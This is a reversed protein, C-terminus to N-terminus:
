FGRLFLKSLSGTQSHSISDQESSQTSRLLLPLLLSHLQVQLLQIAKNGDEEEEEEEEEEEQMPLIGQVQLKNHSDANSHAAM